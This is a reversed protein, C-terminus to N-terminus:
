RRRVVWGKLDRKYQPCDRDVVARVAKPVTAAIFARTGRYTILEFHVNNYYAVLIYVQPEYNQAVMTLSYARVGNSETPELLLLKVRLGRELNGISEGDGWIGGEERIYKAYDDRTDIHELWRYALIDNRLQAAQPSLHRGTQCLRQLNEKASIYLDKKIRFEEETIQSAIVDKQAAISICTAQFIVHYLCNGDAPNQVTAFGDDNFAQAIWSRAPPAEPSPPLVWNRTPTTTTAPAHSPVDWQTDPAPAASKPVVYLRPMDLLGERTVEQEMDAILRRIMERRKILDEHPLNLRGAALISRCLSQDRLRLTQLSRMRATENRARLM